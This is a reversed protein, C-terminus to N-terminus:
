LPVEVMVISVNMDSSGIQMNMFNGKFSRNANNGNANQNMRTNFTGMQAMMKMSDAASGNFNMNEFRKTLSPLGNWQRTKANDHSPNNKIGIPGYQGTISMNDFSYEDDTNTLISDSRAFNDKARSTDFEFIPPQKGSPWMNSMGISDVEDVTKNRFMMRAMEM